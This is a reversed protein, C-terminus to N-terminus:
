RFTQIGSTVKLKTFKIMKNNVLLAASRWLLYTPVDQLRAFIDKLTTSGSTLKMIRKMTEVEEASVSAQLRQWLEASQSEATPLVYLDPTTIALKSQRLHNSAEAAKHQIYDITAGTCHELGTGSIRDLQDASLETYAQFRYSSSDFATIVELIAQQGMLRGCGAKEPIGEAFFVWGQRGGQETVTLLGSKKAISISNFMEMPEFFETDADLVKRQKRTKFSAPVSSSAICRNTENQSRVFEIATEVELMLDDIKAAHEPYTAAAASVSLSPLGGPWGTFAEVALRGKEAIEMAKIAQVDDLILLFRCAGVRYLCDGFLKKKAGRSGALVTKNLLGAMTAIVADTTTKGQASNVSMFNDCDFLVMSVVRYVDSSQQVSKFEAFFENLSKANALKTLGDRRAEMFEKEFRMILQVMGQCVEAIRTAAREFRPQRVTDKAQIFCCLFLASDASQAILYQYFKTEVDRPALAALGLREVEKVEAARIEQLNKLKVSWESNSAPVTAIVSEPVGSSACVDLVLPPQVRVAFISCLLSDFEDELSNIIKQGVMASSSCISLDRVLKNVFKDQLDKTVADLLDARTSEMDKAHSAKWSETLSGTEEMLRSVEGCAFTNLALPGATLKPNNRASVLRSATGLPSVVLFYLLIIQAVLLLGTVILFSTMTMPFLHGAICLCSVVALSTGVFYVLLPIGLPPRRKNSTM